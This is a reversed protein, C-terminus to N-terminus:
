LGVGIGIHLRFSRTGDLPHALDVRVTGIPARYRLGAGVGRSLDPFNNNAAGGADIFVAGGFNGWFLYEAEASMTALYRGGIVNGDADREGLSQYAYGRVSQDGGAYFRETLPLREFSDVFSAGYSFRALFRAKDGLPLIGHTDIRSQVFSTSSLAEASAGHVDLFVRWGNRPVLDDDAERREFSVGPVLLDTTRRLDGVSFRETSYELYTRRRWSGPQRSLSVGLEYRESEGDEFRDDSYAATFSLREGPIEGLPINYSTGVNSRREALRIDSDIWHGRRNIRRLESNLSLRAGTDTGYGIGASYRQSPLYEPEVRVPLRDGEAEDRIPSVDVRSFYGLDMLRFQTDLLKRPAYPEGETIPLYRRLVDDHLTSQEIRIDGIRYRPGTDLVLSVAASNEAPRVRIEAAKYGVDFYGLAYAARTLQEKARAYPAHRLPQGETLDLRAMQRRLQRDKAGEGEIGIRLRDIMTRPGTEVRYTARLREAAEDITELEAEIRPNYYGFPQLAGRINEPARQHLREIMYRKQEGDGAANRIALRKRVNDLLEGELGEIVVEASAAWATPATTAALLVALVSGLRRLM